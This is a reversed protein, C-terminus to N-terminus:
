GEMNTKLLTLLMKMFQEKDGQLTSFFDKDIQEVLPVTENAKNLGKQTLQISKARSDKISCSRKIYDKKELNELIQSITMVDINTKNSLIVQTIEDPQQSLYALTALVIFQPHTISQKKLCNKINTHWSSYTKMFVFGISESDTQFQTLFKNDKTM